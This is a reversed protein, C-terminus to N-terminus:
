PKPACLLELEDDLGNRVAAFYPFNRIQHNPLARLGSLGKVRLLCDPHAYHRISYKVSPMLHNKDARWDGCFRCTNMMM